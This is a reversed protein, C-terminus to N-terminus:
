AAPKFVFVGDATFEGLGTSEMMARLKESRVDPSAQLDANLGRDEPVLETAADILGLSIAEDRSVDRVDMGSNFAFPAYPNGLGDSFVAPDGLKNWIDDAPPKLAIMRGDYFKGGCKAWRAAWDREKGTAFFRVLEQAPFADLVTPDQGQAFWGYGRAVDVNTELTLNIRPTSSLDQLGGAVEPDPEFGMAALQEKMIVRAQATNIQGDLMGNILDDYAQLQHASDVTASFMAREKVATKVKAFDATRGTTPLLSRVARSDIAEQFPMPTASIM